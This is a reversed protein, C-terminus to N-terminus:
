VLTPLGYDQPRMRSGDAHTGVSFVGTTHLWRTLDLPDFLRRPLNGAADPAGAGAERAESASLRAFFIEARAHERDGGAGSATGVVSCQAGADMKRGITAHYEILEGPRLLGNFSLKTFKALVLLERFGYMESALLGATQAMGEAVLSNPMAPLVDWHWHIFDDSLSVGKTARAHSGAAYETFRDVWFWRM